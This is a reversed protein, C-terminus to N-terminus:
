HGPRRRLVNVLCGITGHHRWLGAVPIPVVIFGQARWAAQGAADLRQLVAEAKGATGAYQPLFVTKKGDQTQVVANTYTLYTRQEFAVVPVRTVLLGNGRLQEAVRDFQAQTQTSEDALLPAETEVGLDGPQWAAGTLTQALRPDGVLAQGPGTQMWYMAMHYGPVDGPKEGIMKAPRGTWLTLAKALEQPTGFGHDSNRSLLNADFWVADATLLLDGGDFNLPLPVMRVMARTKGLIQTAQWDNSREEWGPQPAPPTLLALDADRPQVALARDRTWPTLPGPVELIHLHKGLREVLGQTQLFADLALRDPGSAVTLRVETDAPIAKLFAAQAPGAIAESEATYQLWVEALAGAQEAVAQGPELPSIPGQNQPRQSWALVLVVGLVAALVAGVIPLWARM